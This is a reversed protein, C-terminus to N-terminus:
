SPLLHLIANLRKLARGQLRSSLGTEAGSLELAAIGNPYMDPKGQAVWFDYLSLLRKQWLVSLLHGDQEGYTKAEFSASMTLGFKRMFAHLVSNALVDVRIGFLARGSREINWAGGLVAERFHM